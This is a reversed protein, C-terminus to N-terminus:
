DFQINSLSHLMEKNLPESVTIFYKLGECFYILYKLCYMM